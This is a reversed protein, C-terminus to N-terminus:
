CALGHQHEAKAAVRRRLPLPSRCQRLQPPLRRARLRRKRWFRKWMSGAHSIPRPSIPVPSTSSPRRRSKGRPMRCASPFPASSRSSRSQLCRSPRKCRRPARWRRVRMRPARRSARLPSTKRRLPSAGGRLAIALRSGRSRRKKRPRSGANASAMSVISGTSAPLRRGAPNRCASRKRLRSRRRRNSPRPLPHSCIPSLM